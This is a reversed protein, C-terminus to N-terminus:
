WMKKREEGLKEKGKVFSFLVGPHRAPETPPAQPEQVQPQSNSGGVPNTCVKQIFTYLIFTYVKSFFSINEAKRGTKKQTRGGKRDSM